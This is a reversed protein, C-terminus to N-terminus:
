NPDYSRAKSQIMFSSMEDIHARHFSLQGSLLQQVLAM